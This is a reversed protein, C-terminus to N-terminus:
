IGGDEDQLLNRRDASASGAFGGDGTKKVGITIYQM